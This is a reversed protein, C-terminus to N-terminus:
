SIVIVKTEPIYRISKDQPFHFDDYKNLFEIAERLHIYSFGDEIITPIELTLRNDVMVRKKADNFGVVYGLSQLFSRAAVYNVGKVNKSKYGSIHGNISIICSTDIVDPVTQEKIEGKIREIFEYWGKLAAENRVWMSPCHKGTVDHHMIVKDVDLNYKKLLYQVLEVTNSITQETFYWDIDLDNLSRKNTKNSCMEISISNANTAIGHYKGGRSTTMKSYKAGGISWCYYKNPNPNYQVIMADDVCYDASGYSNADKFWDCTNWATGSRSTTGATYHIIIYKIASNRISTNHTSTNKQINLSM